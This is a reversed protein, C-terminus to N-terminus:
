EKRTKRAGFGRPDTRRSQISEPFTSGTAVWFTDGLREVQQARGSAEITALAIALDTASLDALAEELEKQRMPHRAIVNVVAEVVGDAGDLVFRESTPVLVSCMYGLAEEARRLGAADPVQVWSESPPRVPVNIHVADPQLPVLLQAIEELASSTDNLGRILMVAPWFAGGYSQRFTQLGLRFREFTIAPHPRNIHRFLGPNGANVSPMIADAQCLALCVAEDGLLSGNTIVALPISSLAKIGQILEGIGSHLTPEGSGVITIWDVQGLELAQLRDELDRLIRDVPVYAQRENVVPQTRGLQCYVCNWNCTKLPVPDIGLSRGLRRSPVPGFVTESPQPVPDPM